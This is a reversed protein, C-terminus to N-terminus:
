PDYPHNQKVIAGFVRRLCLGAKRTKPTELPQLVVSESRGRRLQPKPPRQLTAKVGPLM